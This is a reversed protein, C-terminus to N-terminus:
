NGRGQLMHLAKLYLPREDDYQAAEPHVIILWNKMTGDGPNFPRYTDPDSQIYRLVEDPDAKVGLGDKYLFALMSRGVYYSPCGFTKKKPLGLEGQFFADAWEELDARPTRSMGM